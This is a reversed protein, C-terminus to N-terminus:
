VVDDKNESHCTDTYSSPVGLEIRILHLKLPEFKGKPPPGYRKVYEMYEQNVAIAMVPTEISAFMFGRGGTAPKHCDKKIEEIRAEVSKSM